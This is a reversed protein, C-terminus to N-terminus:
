SEKKDFFPRFFIAIRPFFVPIVTTWISFCPLLIGIVMVIFLFFFRYTQSTKILHKAGKEDRELANQVTYGMLFFNLIVAAASLLNGLIVTYNWKGIVLFVAQMVASLLLVWLAIYKTEKIVTAAIKKM